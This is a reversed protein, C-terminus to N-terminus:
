LVLWDSHLLMKFAIGKRFNQSPPRVDCFVWSINGHFIRILSGGSNSRSWEITQPTGHWRFGPPPVPTPHEVTFVQDINLMKRIDGDRLFSITQFVHCISFPQSCFSTIPHSMIFKSQQHQTTAVSSLHNSSYIFAMCVCYRLVEKQVVSKVTHTPKGLTRCSERTNHRGTKQSRFEGSLGRPTTLPSGRENATNLSPRYLGRAPCSRLSPNM